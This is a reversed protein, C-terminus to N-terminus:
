RVKNRRYISLKDYQRRGRKLYLPIFGIQSFYSLRDCDRGSMYISEISRENSSKYFYIKKIEKSNMYLDRPIRRSISSFVKYLSLRHM